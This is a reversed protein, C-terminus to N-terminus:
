KGSLWEGAPSDPDPTPTTSIELHVFADQAHIDNYGELDEEPRPPEPTVTLSDGSGAVPFILTLQLWNAGNMYQNPYYAYYARPSTGNLEIVADEFSTEPLAKVQRTYPLVASFADEFSMSEDAARICVAAIYAFADADCVRLEMSNLSDAYLSFTMEVDEPIEANDEQTIGLIALGDYCGFCSNIVPLGNERLGTNVREVYDALAEQGKTAPAFLPEALACAPLAACLLICLMRRLNM